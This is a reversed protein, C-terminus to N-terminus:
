PGATGQGEEPGATGEGKGPGTIGAKKESVQLTSGTRPPVPHDLLCRLEAAVTQPERELRRHTLRIVRFGAAQMKADRRRDREFAARHRHFAWSDGEVMLKAQPWFADVERGLVLVNTHPSPLDYQRCLELIRDELPTRAPEPARAEKILRRLPKM